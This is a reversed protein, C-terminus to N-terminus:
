EGGWNKALQVLTRVGVGTAGKVNYGSDKDSSVTGAIDVHVWPTKDAFAAIFLGATIAGAPRGGTNKLDAIDSKIQEKYETFLPLEWMKEGALDAADLLQRKLGPDTSMVGSTLNGLAVVCAGTLTALDIIHTAGLKRAYTIADALILRGEADTSIIEITKGGMSTIVDGPRFAYGSPLNETCPVVALLNVPLKLGAIAMAAGLVAAGGAMDDKMEHMGESPKLSIGGSDFTIGKGVFTLLRADGPAGSYKLVILRPPEQSGQAVALFAPMNLQEIQKKDYVTIELGATGAIQEAHWAMRVPTMHNAPHNVLDRAFNVAGAITEANRLATQLLPINQTNNEIIYLIDIGLVTEQDTKYHHFRYSGLLTGELLAQGAQPLDIGSLNEGHIVSAVTRSELKAAARAAFGAAARLRDVTIEESKGLGLVVVQKAGIGSCVHLVTTTGFKGIDKHDSLLNGILGGLAEDLQKATGSPLLVDETLSIILTDCIIEPASGTIIEFDM